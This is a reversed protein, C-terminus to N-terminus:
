WGGFLLWLCENFDRCSPKMRMSPRSYEYLSELAGDEDLSSPFSRHDKGDKVLAMNPFGDAGRTKRDRVAEWIGWSLDWCVIRDLDYFRLMNRMSDFATKVRFTHLQKNKGVVAQEWYELRDDNPDVPAEFVFEKMGAADKKENWEKLVAGKPMWVMEDSQPVLMGQQATKQDEDLPLHKMLEEKSSFSLKVPSPSGAVIAYTDWNWTTASIDVIMAREESGKRRTQTEELFDLVKQRTQHATVMKGRVPMLYAASLLVNNYTKSAM